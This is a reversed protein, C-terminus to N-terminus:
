QSYFGVIQDFDEESLKSKGDYNPNIRKYASRATKLKLQADDIEGELRSLKSLKFTTRAVEPAYYVHSQFVRLAQDFFISALIPQNKRTHHEGLKAYLQATRWYHSRVTALYHALARSHADYSEDMKGQKKYIDGLVHLVRGLKYSGTETAGFRRARFDLIDQLLSIAKDHDGMCSTAYAEHMTAYQPFVLGETTGSSSMYDIAKSAQCHEIAKSYQGALLYAQGVQGHAMALADQTSPSGDNLRLRHSLLEKTYALIKKPPMNVHVGLESLAFLTDALLDRMTNINKECIELALILQPEAAEHNGREVLYWATVKLLKVFDRLIASPFTWMSNLEYLSQIRRVHALVHDSLHWDTTDYNFEDDSWPWGHSLLDVTLAFADQKDSESSRALIVDQVLRHIEITGEDSNYKILSSSLLDDRADELSIKSAPYDEIPLPYLGKPAALLLNNVQDPDMFSLVKLLAISQLKLHQFAWVTLLTHPYIDITASSSESFFDKESPLKKLLEATESEFSKLIDAISKKEKISLAATQSIALPLGGLRSVLASLSDRSESTSDPGLLKSLFDAGDKDSFPEVLFGLFYPSTKGMAWRQVDIKASPNRGTVIVAGTSDMPWYDRLLDPYDANDFVILWSAGPTLAEASDDVTRYPRALWELALNRGVALDLTDSGEALELQVSINGFSEGLKAEDDAQVWFVADYNELRTFVFEAALQTKGVGGLGSLAITRLGPPHRVSPLLVEDMELLLQDRGLFNPNRKRNGLAHCPLKPIRRPAVLDSISPVVEYSFTNLSQIAETVIARDRRSYSPISHSQSVTSAWDMQRVGTDRSTIEQSSLPLRQLADKLLTSVADFSESGPILNTIDIHSLDAPVLKESALSMEALDQDVLIRKRNSQSLTFFGRGIKTKKKEYISVVRLDIGVEQFKTSINAVLNSDMEAQALM